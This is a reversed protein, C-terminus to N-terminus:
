SLRGMLRAAPWSTISVFAGGAAKITGISKAVVNANGIRCLYAPATATTRRLKNEEEELRKLM